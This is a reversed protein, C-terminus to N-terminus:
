ARSASRLLGEEGKEEEWEEEESWEVHRLVVFLVVFHNVQRVSM